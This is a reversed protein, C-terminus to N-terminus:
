AVNAIRAHPRILAEREALAQRVTEVERGVVVLKACGKGEWAHSSFNPHLVLAGGGNAFKARDGSDLYSESPLGEAIVVDHAALEVHHYTVETVKLQAIGGGNMLYKVPILVDEVFIAHDPSLFLDRHPKGPGFADKAVGCRGCRSRIRIATAISEGIALGSSRRPADM